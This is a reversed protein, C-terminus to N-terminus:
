ASITTVSGIENWMQQWHIYRTSTSWNDKVMLFDAVDYEAYGIVTITHNSYYGTAINFLVPNNNPSKIQNKFTNFSWVYTNNSSISYGWRSFADEIINDIVTPNTGGSPTYGRTTGIDLVDAYILSTTSPINTYQSRYWNAIATISVLSCDNDDSSGYNAMNLGVFGSLSGSDEYTYGGYRDNMYTIRNSIVYGSIQGSYNSTTAYSEAIIQKLKENYERAEANDNVQLKKITSLDVPKCLMDLYEDQTKFYYELPGNYIIKAPTIEGANYCCDLNQADSLNEMFIPSDAYSYETVPLCNSDASISIYGSPKENTSLCFTYGVTNNDFDFLPFTSQVCTSMNWCCDSKEINKYVFLLAVDAAEAESFFPEKSQITDKEAAFANINTAGLLMMVIVFLSIYRKM